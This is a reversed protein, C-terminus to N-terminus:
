LKGNKEEEIEGDINAWMKDISDFVETRPDAMSQLIHEYEPKNKMIDLTELMGEYEEESMMIINQKNRRTIVMIGHEDVENLAKFVYQKIAPFTEQLGVNLNM